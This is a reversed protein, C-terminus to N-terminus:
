KKLCDVQRLKVPALPPQQVKEGSPWEGKVIGSPCYGIFPNHFQPFCSHPSECATNVAVVGKGGKQGPCWPTRNCTCICLSGAGFFERIRNRKEPLNSRRCPIIRTHIPGPWICSCRNHLHTNRRGPLRSSISCVKVCAGEKEGVDPVRTDIRLKHSFAQLLEHVGKARPTFSSYSCSGATHM